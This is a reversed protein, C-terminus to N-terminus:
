ACPTRVALHYCAGYAFITGNIGQVAADVIEAGTGQYVDANTHNEQYVRDFAYKPVQAARKSFCIQGNEDVYWVCSEGKQVEKASLGRIRVCVSVPCERSGKGRESYGTQLARPRIASRLTKTSQADTSTARSSQTHLRSERQMDPM